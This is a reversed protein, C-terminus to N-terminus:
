AKARLAKDKAIMAMIDPKENKDLMWTTAATFQYSPQCTVVYQQAQNIEIRFVENFRSLIKALYQPDVTYAENYKAEEPKSHVIDKEPKEHFIFIINGLASFETILYQMYGEVANVADWNKGLLLNTTTTLKIARSALGQAFCENEIAKKLYTVTDFIYTAPIALGQSQRYKLISLDSEIAKLVTPQSQRADILTKIQQVGPRNRISKARNDFDYHLRPGPATTALWSKGVKQKGVIAMSFFDNQPMANDKLGGFPDLNENVKLVAAANSESM